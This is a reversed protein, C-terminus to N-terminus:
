APIELGNKAGWCASGSSAQPSSRPKAVSPLLPRYCSGQQCGKFDLHARLQNHPEWRLKSWAPALCEEPHSATACLRELYINPALHNLFDVLQDGYQELSLTPFPKERFRRALETNELVMVQHPKVGQVGYENLIQAANRAMAPSDPPSGFMLHVCLHVSPARQRLLALAKRSALGSHGRELWELSPDEFSQVGLELSVYTTQALEELLDVIAESLCDPRTGICLGAINPVQLASLYLTRLYAPDAYTNTYSQFYALFHQAGFRRRIEPLRQSLQASIAAAREKKGFFSSSGRVDCFACGKKALSGDRTPCTLGSAVVVKYTKGGFIQQLYRSYPFFPQTQPDQM